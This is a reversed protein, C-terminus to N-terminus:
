QRWDSLGNGWPLAETLARCALGFVVFLLLVSVAGGSRTAAFGIVVAALLWRWVRWNPEWHPRPAPDPARVYALLPV